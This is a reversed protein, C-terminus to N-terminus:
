KSVTSKADSRADSRAAALLGDLVGRARAASELTSQPGAPAADVVTGDADLFVMRNPFPEYMRAVANDITDVVLPMAIGIRAVFDRALARREDLTRPTMVRFQNSPVMRGDLPHAERIYVMLFNVRDGYEEFLAGTERCSRVFPPCTCSGFVLVTPKGRLSALPIASAGDPDSLTFDPARRGVIATRATGRAFDDSAIKMGSTSRGSRSPGTGPRNEVAKPASEPTECADCGIRDMSACGAAVCLMAISAILARGRGEHLHKRTM